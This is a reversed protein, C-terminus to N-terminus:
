KDNGRHYRSILERRIGYLFSLEFNALSLSEHDFVVQEQDPHFHGCYFIWEQYEDNKCYQFGQISIPCHDCDHNIYKKCCPCNSLGCDKGGDFVIKRCKEISLDLEKLGPIM